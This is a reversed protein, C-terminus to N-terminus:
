LEEKMEKLLIIDNGTYLRENHENGLIKYQTAITFLKLFKMEM